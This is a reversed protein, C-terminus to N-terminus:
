RKIHAGVAAANGDRNNTVATVGYSRKGRHIPFHMLGFSILSELVTSPTIASSCGNTLGLSILLM